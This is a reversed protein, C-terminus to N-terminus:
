NINCADRLCIDENIEVTRLSIYEALWTWSNEQLNEDRGHFMWHFRM